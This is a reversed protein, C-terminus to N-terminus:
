SGAQVTSRGWAGPEALAPPPLEATGTHRIVARGLPRGCRAVETTADRGTLRAYALTGSVIRWTGAPAGCRQQSILVIRGKTGILTEAANLRGNVVSRRVVARGREVFAGRAVFTGRGGADITTAITVPAASAARANAGAGTAALPLALAVGGAVLAACALPLREHRRM